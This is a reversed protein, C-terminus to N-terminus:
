LSTCTEWGTAGYVCLKNLTSDYVVMGATPSAIANKQTTTMRPPMFAKTTSVVDLVANANPSAVGIGISGTSVTTATATLGTGFIINGIVLQNSNAATPLDINYGIAINSSGTVTNDASHNGIFINNNAATMNQGAGTGILVNRDMTATAGNGADNGIVVNDNGGTKNTLASRGVAVNYTGTNYYLSYTGISINDTGSVNRNLADNGLGVNGGGATNSNLAGVGIAVNRSGTTNNSLSDLGFAMNYAGTTIADGARMGLATNMSTVIVATDAGRYIKLATSNELDNANDVGLSADAINDTYITTTNDAITALFFYNTTGVTTRYIKRSTVNTGGLPIGTLNVQGNTTKDVVTITNSATGLSTEGIGTVFTVKYIYAGNSLNGAGLGALAATCAGASSVTSFVLNGSLTGGTLKLFKSQLFGWANGIINM